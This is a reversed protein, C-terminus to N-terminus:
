NKYIIATKPYAVGEKGRLLILNGEVSYVVYVYHRDVKSKGSSERYGEPQYAVFEGIVKENKFTKVTQDTWHFSVFYSFGVIITSIFFKYYFDNREWIDFLTVVLWCVVAFLIIFFGVHDPPVDPIPNFTYTM